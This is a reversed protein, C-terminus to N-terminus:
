KSDSILLTVKLNKLLAIAGKYVYNPSKGGRSVSFVVRVYLM